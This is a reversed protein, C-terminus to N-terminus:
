DQRETRLKAYIKQYEYSSPKRTKTGNVIYYTPQTAFGGSFSLVKLPVKKITIIFTNRNFKAM